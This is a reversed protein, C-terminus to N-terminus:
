AHLERAIARDSGNESYTGPETHTWPNCCAPTNCHPLHRLILGEPIPGRLMEYVLPPVRTAKGHINVYGYGDKFEPRSHRPGNRAGTWLWCPERPWDLPDTIGLQYLSVGWVEIRAWVSAPFRLWLRSM